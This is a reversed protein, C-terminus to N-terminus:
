KPLKKWPTKTSFGHAEAVSELVRYWYELRTGAWPAIGGEEISVDPDPVVLEPDVELHTGLGDCRPCAGYPSNFSFNRPQLEEFSLGDFMCALHQSYTDVQGSDVLEIAVMGDALNLATEVSDTLR